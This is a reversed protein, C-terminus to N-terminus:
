RQGIGEEHVQPRAQNTLYDHFRIWESRENPFSSRNQQSILAEM